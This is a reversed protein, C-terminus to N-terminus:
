AKEFITARRGKGPRIVTVKPPNAERLRNMINTITVISFVIGHDNLLDQLSSITFQKGMLDIAREIIRTKQGWGPKIGDFRSRNRATIAGNTSPHGGELDELVLDYARLLEQDRTVRAAVQERNARVQDPTLDSKPHLSESSM